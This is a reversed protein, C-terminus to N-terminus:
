YDGEYCCHSQLRVEVADVEECVQRMETRVPVVEHWKNQLALIHQTKIQGQAKYRLM